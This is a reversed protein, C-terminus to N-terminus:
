AFWWRECLKWGDLEWNSARQEPHALKDSLGDVFNAYMPIVAGGDDRVLQQMEHYMTRRKEADLEARAAVLLEMFRDNSWFSENWSGGAAYGVSFMWDETPRGGWYSMSWPEKMWVNSWYGDNPERVVEIDIGAKAAHEKYLVATDIAGEFATDAAHLKVKLSDMGAKKLHHKAKDPDYVRQELDAAYYRQGPGIPHDNAVKGHGRLITNVLAERDIAHKLALRVDVNDFPAVTSNMPITYHQNGTTDQVVISGQKALLHATKRDVRNMADIEGTVLANQRATVDAIALLELEDFHARGEKFYNPNRTMTMRVGPDFEKLVYGGTGAGGEWDAKGDKSPVITIHYDNVVFPFDANGGSLEVIVTHKGDARVDVVEELLSKAASKSEEGRHHNISAVVDEAELSKGNHFEVGKRLKFTWTKADPSAEFSEALEPIIEGDPAVETLNNQVAGFMGIQTHNSIYTAPDLVDTTAPDSLGLRLVGGSKPTAAEVTSVFTSAGAATLGLAISAQLFERRNVGGSKYSKKLAELKQRREKNESKM